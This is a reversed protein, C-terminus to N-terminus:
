PEAGTMPVLKAAALYPAVDDAPPPPCKGDCKGLEDDTYEYYTRGPEYRTLGPVSEAPEKYDPHGPQKPDHPLRKELRTLLLLLYSIRNNHNERSLELSAIRLQLVYATKSLSRVAVVLIIVAAFLAAIALWVAM